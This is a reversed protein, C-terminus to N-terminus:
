INELHVSCELEMLGEANRRCFHSVSLETTTIRTIRSRKHYFIEKKWHYFPIAISTNFELVFQVNYLVTGVM